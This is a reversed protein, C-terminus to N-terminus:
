LAIAPAVFDFRPGALEIVVLEDPQNREHGLGQADTANDHLGDHWVLHSCQKAHKADHGLSSCPLKGLKPSVLGIPPLHCLRLTTHQELCYFLESPLSVHHGIDKTGHDPPLQHQFQGPCSTATPRSASNPLESLIFQPHSHRGGRDPQPM